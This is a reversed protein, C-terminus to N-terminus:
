ERPVKNYVLSKIPRDGLWRVSCNEFRVDGSNALFNSITTKGCGNAGYFFNVKKLDSIEVGDDDYSAVGSINISSIM